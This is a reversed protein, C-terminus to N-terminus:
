LNYQQQQQQQHQRNHGSDRLQTTNDPMEDIVLKIGAKSKIQKKSEKIDEPSEIPATSSLHRKHHKFTSGRQKLRENSHDRYGSVNLDRTLISGRSNNLNEKLRNVAKDVEDSWKNNEGLSFQQQKQDREKKKLRNSIARKAMLETISEDLTDDEGLIAKNMQQQIQNSNPNSIKFISVADALNKIEIERQKIMEHLDANDRELGEIHHVQEDAIDELEEIQLQFQEEKDKMKEVQDELKMALTAERHHCKTQEALQLELDKIKIQQDKIQALHNTTEDLHRKELKNISNSRVHSSRVVTDAPKSDEHIEQLADMQEQIQYNLSKIHEEQDKLSAEQM